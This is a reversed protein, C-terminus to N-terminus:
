RIVSSMGRYMGMAFNDAPLLSIPSQKKAVAKDQKTVAGRIFSSHIAAGLNLAFLSVFIMEFVDSCFM